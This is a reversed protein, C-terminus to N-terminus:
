MIHIFQNSKGFIGLIKPIHPHFAHTAKPIGEFHTRESSIRDSGDRPHLQINALSVFIRMDKTFYKQPEPKM